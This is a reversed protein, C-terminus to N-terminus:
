NTESRRFLSNRRSHGAWLFAAKGEPTAAKKHAESATACCSTQVALTGVPVSTLGQAQKIGSCVATGNSGIKLLVSPTDGHAGNCFVDACFHGGRNEKGVTCSGLHRVQNRFLTVRV